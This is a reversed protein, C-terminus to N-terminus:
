KVKIAYEGKIKLGMQQAIYSKEPNSVYVRGQWNNSFNANKCIPCIDMKSRKNKMKEQKEIEYSNTYSVNELKTEIKNSEELLGSKEKTTIKRM